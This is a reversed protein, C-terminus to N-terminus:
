LVRQHNALKGMESTFVMRNVRFLKPIPREPKQTKNKGRQTTSPISAMTAIM